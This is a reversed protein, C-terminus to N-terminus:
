NNRQYDSQVYRQKGGLQNKRVELKDILGHGYLKGPARRRPEPPEEPALGLDVQIGEEKARQLNAEIDAFAVDREGGVMLTHRFTFQALSMSSRPNPTFGSGQEGAGFMTLVPRPGTTKAGPPM